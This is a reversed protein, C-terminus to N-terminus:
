RWLLVFAGLAILYSTFYSLKRSALLKILVMLFVYGTVFAAAAGVIAPMLDGGPGKERTELLTAAMIAPVSMLFSMRAVDRREVGSMVGAFITLGSRSLGPMAAIGQFVGM